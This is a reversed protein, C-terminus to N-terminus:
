LTDPDLAHAAFAIPDSMSHQTAWDDGYDDCTLVAKRGLFGQQVSEQLRRSPKHRTSWRVVDAQPERSESVQQSDNEMVIGNTPGQEQQVERVDERSDAGPSPNMEYGLQSKEMGGKSEGLTTTSNQEKEEELMPNRRPQSKKGERFHTAEQWRIMGSECMTDVTEFMDDYVVHYQPSVLGTVLNLVLAVSRSHAPSQGLYMGVRARSDWKPIKQGAQLANHLAYVPCGFPHFSGLTPFVNASAFVNLASKGDVRRPTCGLADNVTRLAYPWLHHNVAEPWRASAHLLATRTLDQLDRIRKEAIGNQFHANVGCYTISQRKEKIDELFMNDAFRGNDAHYHRVAVGHSESFKEFAIKAEVTEASTMAQQLYVFSLRSFHDVFITAATYRQLTPVGKLQAILGPSPSQLQDVSVCQGPAM